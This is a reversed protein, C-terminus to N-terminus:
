HAIMKDKSHAISNEFYAAYFDDNQYGIMKPALERGRDDVFQITPTVRVGRQFAFDDSYVESGNFDKIEAISDIMVKRFIMRQDLDGSLIMPKIVDNELRQCYECDEASYMLVIPINGKKASDSLTSLDEALPVDVSAQNGAESSLAISNHALFAITFIFVIYRM